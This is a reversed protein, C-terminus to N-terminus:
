GLAADFTSGRVDLKSANWQEAAPVITECIQFSRGGRLFDNEDIRVSKRNTGDFACFKSLSGVATVALLLPTLQFPPAGARPL